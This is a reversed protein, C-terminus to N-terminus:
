EPLTAMFRRELLTRWYCHYGESLILVGKPDRRLIDTLVVDFEPHFKYVSQLCAYLHGDAPLDFAERAKAPTTREPRYCYAPITKLRVLTESYHEDAQATEFLESSVFYDITDLGTTDPHGWTVCQVPALRSFALSYLLPDVVDTYFLIDLQQETLL